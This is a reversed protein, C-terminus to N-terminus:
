DQLLVPKLVLTKKFYFPINMFSTSNLNSCIAQPITSGAPFNVIPKMRQLYKEPGTENNLKDEFGSIKTM